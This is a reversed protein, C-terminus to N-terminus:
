DMTPQYQSAGARRESLTPSAPLALWQQCHYARLGMERLRSPLLGRGKPPLPSQDELDTAAAAEACHTLAVVHGQPEDALQGPGRALIHLILYSRAKM